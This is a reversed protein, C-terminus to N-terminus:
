LSGHYLTDHVLCGNSVGDIGHAATLFSIIFSLEIGREITACELLDRWSEGDGCLISVFM